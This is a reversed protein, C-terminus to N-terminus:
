HHTRKGSLRYTIGGLFRTESYTTDNTREGTVLLSLSRNLNVVASGGWRKTRPGSQVIFGNEASLFVLSVSSTFDASVYVKNAFSRGGSVSWSDYSDGVGPNNRNGSFRVDIGTSGISNTFFGYTIRDVSKEDRNNKDRGYSGFIFVNSVVQVTTRFDMSEFLLGKLANVDVPRGDLQDQTITRADISRGHHYIGLFELSRTPAYRANTFFYNLGGSGNGAPGTLDYEASQYVFVKNQYPLYNTFILVSRETLGSNRINAYGIVHSRGHEADLAAFGGFKKIGSVYSPDLIEPELGAFIGFRLRGASSKPRKIQFVGGGISGLSGIESLWIQGARVTFSGFQQGVFANYISLHSSRGETGPYASARLDVGYEWGQESESYPSTLSFSSILEGYSGTGEGEQNISAGQGFISIRAQGWDQAFVPLCAILTLISCSLIKAKM